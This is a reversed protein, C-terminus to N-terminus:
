INANSRIMGSRTRRLRRTVAPPHEPVPYSVEAHRRFLEASEALCGRDVLVLALNRLTNAMDPKLALARRYAAEPEAVLKKVGQEQATNTKM